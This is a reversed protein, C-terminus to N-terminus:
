KLVVFKKVVTKGQFKIVALYPGAAVVRGDSNTFNWEALAEGPTYRVEPENLLEKVKEGALTMIIVSMAGGSSGAKYTGKFYVGEHKQIWAPNPFPESIEDASSVISFVSDSQATTDPILLDTVKVLCSDSPTEPVKWAYSLDNPTSAAIEIWSAGADTSYEISVSDGAGPLYWAIDYTHGSYWVEGGKPQSVGEVMPSAVFSYPQALDNGDLVTIILALRDYENAWPVNIMSTVTDYKVHEFRIPLNINNQMGVATIGWANAKNASFSVALGSPLSATNEFIIYNAGLNDPKLTDHPSVTAPFKTVRAALNVTDYDSGDPFYISPKARQRTFLNWLAFEQFEDPLDSANGSASKIAADMSPLWNSGAQTGCGDWIAKIIGSGFRKSLFIPFVVSGYMHMNELYDQLSGTRVSWQSVKYFFPLYNFYDNIQDYHEEEMYTASMEMWATNLDSGHVELESIDIAFQVAHFFEHAMSVRLANLRNSEYGPFEQYDNELFMYATATPPDTALVQENVTAGYAAFDIFYIDLRGDGGNTGDSLPTTFGLAGCTHNWVSDCIRGAMVIYDPVGSVITQIDYQYVRHLGTGTYHLLFHDTGYTESLTDERGPYQLFTEVGKPQSFAQANLIPTACKIPEAEGRHIAASLEEFRAAVDDYYKQWDAATMEGAQLNGIAAVGIIILLLTIKKVMIEMQILARRRTEAM